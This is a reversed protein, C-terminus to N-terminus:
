EPCAGHILWAIVFCKFFPLAWPVQFSLLACLARKLDLCGQTSGWWGGRRVQKWCLAGANMAHFSRRGISSYIMTQDLHSSPLFEPLCPWRRLWVWAYELSEHSVGLSHMGWGPYRAGEGLLLLSCPRGGQIVEFRVLGYYLFCM